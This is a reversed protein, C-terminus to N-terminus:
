IEFKKLVEALLANFKEPEELMVFHGVGPMLLVEFSAAHQRNGLINTPYKDANICFVPIRVEELTKKADYDFLNKMASLAVRPPASSMDAAVRDVLAPDAIAPFMSRVFGNVNQQFDDHFGAIFKRKEEDSHEKGFDHFTDAGVLALVRSSLGRAADLIVPGGMSHGIMVIKDLKLKDAVARVDEGYAEMTWDDRNLGSEGHGGLDIAVVKHKGSFFVMQNNWYDKDCSWGHVFILAPSGEGQVRYHIPVGDASVVSGETVQAAQSPAEDQNKHCAPFFLSNLLFLSFVLVGARCRATSAIGSSSVTGRVVRATRIRIWDMVFGRKVYGPHM